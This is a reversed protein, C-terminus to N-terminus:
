ELLRYQKKDKVVFGDKEMTDLISDLREPECVTYKQLQQSTQVGETLLARLVKGRIQRDSGEFPTQKAYHKSRRNPNSVIKALHSGYDMLAYFWGRPNDHDITQEVLPFIEKDDVVERNEFFHHIFVRRINTEIFPIPLNYAYTVMAAATAPGIGPLEDLYSVSRPLTSEYQAIIIESARKLYLGRRNYGMGQWEALVEATSAAALTSFDPFRSIFRPYREIVRSVQTQQLMIESVFVGYPTIKERWILSRGNIRYYENVLSRFQEINITKGM